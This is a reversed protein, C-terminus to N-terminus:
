HVQGRGKLRAPGVLAGSPLVGVDLNTRPKLTWTGDARPVLIGTVDLSSELLPKSSKLNYQISRDFVVDVPGSGDDVTAQFDLSHLTTTDKVAAGSISVLAADLEGGNASAAQATTVPTPPPGQAKGLLFVKADFLVPQGDRTSVRGLVRVSDGGQVNTPDMRTGRITGSTDVFCVTSDGYTAWSNLM